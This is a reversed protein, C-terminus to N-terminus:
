LFTFIFGVWLGLKRKNPGSPQSSARQPAPVIDCQIWVKFGQKKKPNHRNIQTRM